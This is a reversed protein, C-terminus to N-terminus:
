AEYESTREERKRRAMMVRHRDEIQYLRARRQAASLNNTHSKRKQEANRRRRPWVVATGYIKFVEVMGPFLKEIRRAFREAPKRKGNTWATWTEPTTRVAASAEQTTMNAIAQYDALYRGITQAQERYEASEDRKM